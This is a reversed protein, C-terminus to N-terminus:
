IAKGNIACVKMVDRTVDGNKKYFDWYFSKAESNYCVFSNEHERFCDMNNHQFRKVIKRADRNLEFSDEHVIFQLNEVGYYNYSAMTIFEQKRESWLQSKHLCIEYVDSAIAISTLLLVVM